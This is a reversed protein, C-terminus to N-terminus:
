KHRWGTRVTLYEVLRPAVTNCARFARLMFPLTVERANTTLGRLTAAAVQAPTVRPIFRAIGPIRETAGTNRTFYESTTEGPMVSLARVGTGALDHWLAKNFGYLAHRAALYGTAGPWGIAAVPSNIIVIHGRRQTLMEPLCLRTMYFAAFYPADMMQRAEAPTTEETFLWRGAGASNVIITPHGLTAVVHAHAREAADADALDVPVALAVGGAARITAAVTDLADASRALLAVRAGQQALAQAIAAGIGASAGTVLAIDNSFPPM